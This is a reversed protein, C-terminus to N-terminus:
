FKGTPGLGGACAKSLQLIRWNQECFKGLVKSLNKRVGELKTEIGRNYGQKGTWEFPYM